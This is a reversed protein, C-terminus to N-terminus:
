DTLALYQFDIQDDLAPSNIPRLIPLASDVGTFNNTIMM